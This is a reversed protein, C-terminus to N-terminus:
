LIAKQGKSLTERGYQVANAPCCHYCRLCLTCSSDWSPRGSEMKINGLPCERSCLGCGTCKDTARFPKPNMAFRIFWPYVVHSKIWAFNGKIIDITESDAAIREAIKRILAPAESLKRQAVIDSDVDFGKMLTYTNPMVVSSASAPVWGKAAILKRWQKHTLGADDGCTIVLHHKVRGAGEIEVRKIFDVLVPPVGWSYVPFVWVVRDNAKSDVNASLLSEGRLNIINSDALAASLERAVYASNGTGSFYLIM